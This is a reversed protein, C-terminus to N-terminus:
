LWLISSDEQRLTFLLCLKVRLGFVRCHRWFLLVQLAELFMWIDGGSTSRETRELAECLLSRARPKFWTAACISFTIWVSGCDSVSYASRGHRHRMFVRNPNWKGPPPTRNQSIIQEPSKKAGEQGVKVGGNSKLFHDKLDPICGRIERLRSRM